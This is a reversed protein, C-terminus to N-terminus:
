YRPLQSRLADFQEENGDIVAQLLGNLPKQPLGYKELRKRQDNKWQSIISRGGVDKSLHALVLNSLEFAPTGKTLAKAQEGETTLAPEYGVLDALCKLRLEDYSLVEFANMRYHAGGISQRNSLVDALRTPPSPEILEPRTFKTRTAKVSARLEALLKQYREEIKKITEDTVGAGIKATRERELDKLSDLIGPIRTKEDLEMATVDCRISVRIVLGFEEVAFKKVLAEIVKGVQRQGELHTYVLDANAFTGLQALVHEELRRCIKDMEPNSTRFRNWGRGHIAEVRVRGRYTVGEVDSFSPLKIELTGESKELSSWVQTIETDRMRFVIDIVDAKFKEVLRAEIRERLAQEIAPEEEEPETHSFRMYFREPDVSHLFRRVEHDVTDKMLKPVDQRRNLYSEIDKLREFKATVIVGLKVPFKPMNTEYENEVYLHFPELLQHLEFAPVLFQKAAFNGSFVNEAASFMDKTVM